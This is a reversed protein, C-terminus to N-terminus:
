MDHAMQIWEVFEWGTENLICKLYYKAQKGRRHRLILRGQESGEL